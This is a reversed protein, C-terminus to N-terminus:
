SFLHEGRFFARKQRQHITNSRELLGQYQGFYIKGLVDKLDRLQFMDGSINELDNERIQNSVSHEEAEKLTAKWMPKESNKAFEETIADFLKKKFHHIELYLAARQLCFRGIHIKVGPKGDELQVERFNSNIEDDTLPLDVDEDIFNKDYKGGHLIITEMYRDSRNCLACVQKLFSCTSSNIFIDKVKCSPESM